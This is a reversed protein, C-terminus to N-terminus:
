LGGFELFYILYNDKNIKLEDKLRKYAWETREFLEKLSQIANYKGFQM